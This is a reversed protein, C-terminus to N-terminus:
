KLKNIKFSVEYQFLSVRPMLNLAYELREDKAKLIIIGRVDYGKHQDKTLNEKVWGM